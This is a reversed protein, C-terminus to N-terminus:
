GPRDRRWHTTSYRKQGTISDQLIGLTDLGEPAALYEVYRVDKIDSLEGFSDGENDRELDQWSDKIVLTIFPSREPRARRCTAARGWINCRARQM